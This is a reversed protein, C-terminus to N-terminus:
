SVQTDAKEHLRTNNTRRSRLLGSSFYLLM